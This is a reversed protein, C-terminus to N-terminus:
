RTVSRGDVSLALASAADVYRRDYEAIADVIAEISDAGATRFTALALLCCAGDLLERRPWNGDEALSRCLDRAVTDPQSLDLPDLLDPDSVLETCMRDVFRRTRKREITAIRGEVFRKDEDNTFLPYLLERIIDPEGLKLLVEFAKVTAAVGAEGDTELARNVADAMIASLRPRLPEPAESCASVIETLANVVDLRTKIQTVCECLEHLLREAHDAAHEGLRVVAIAIVRVEAVEQFAASGPEGMIDGVMKMFALLEPSAPKAGSRITERLQEIQRQLMEAAGDPDVLARVLALGRDVTGRAVEPGLRAAAASAREDITALAEHGLSAAARPAADLVAELTKVARGDAPEQEARDLLDFFLTSDGDISARAAALTAVGDEFMFDRGGVGYLWGRRVQECLTLAIEAHTEALVAAAQTAQRLAQHYLPRGAGTRVLETLAAAYDATSPSDTAIAEEILIRLASAASSIWKTRTLLGVADAFRGEEHCGAAALTLLNDTDGEPLEGLSRRTAREILQSGAAVDDRLLTSGLAAWRDAADDDDVILGGLRDLVASVQAGRPAKLRDVAALAEDINSGDPPFRDLLQLAVDIADAAIAKPIFPPPFRQADITAVVPELMMRWRPDPPAPVHELVDLLMRAVEVPEEVARPAAGDLLEGASEDSGAEILGVAVSGTASGDLAPQALCRAGLADLPETRGLSRLARALATAPSAGLSSAEFLGNDRLLADVLRAAEDPDLANLAPLLRAQATLRDPAYDIADLAALGHRVSPEADGGLAGAAAAVAGHVYARTAPDVVAEAARQVQELLRGTADAPLRGLVLVDCVAEFRERQTASARILPLMGVAASLTEAAATLRTSDGLEDRLLECAIAVLQEAAHGREAPLTRAISIVREVEGLRVWAVLLSTPLERMLERATQRAVSLAAVAAPDPANRQVASRVATTFDDVLPGYSGFRTWSAQIWTADLLEALREPGYVEDVHQAANLLAYDGRVPGLCYDAVRRQYVEAEDDLLAQVFDRIRSHSLWYGRRADGSLYSRARDLLFDINTGRLSDDPAISILEDRALSGNAIALTGMLDTFQQEGCEEVGRQWWRRLYESHTQPVDRLGVVDGHAAALEVILDHVYFPDGESVDAILATAAEAASAPVNGAQAVADAIEDRELRGLEIIEDERLELGVQAPWATGAIERASFVLRTAPPLERPFLDPRMDCSGVAEDLGDLVVMVGRETPAPLTLLDAYLLRLDREQQPLQGGLGHVALLQESLSQLVSVGPEDRSIFHFVLPHGRADLEVIWRALLATKGFGAPGTVFLYPRVGNEVHEALRRLEDARGGTRTAGALLESFYRRTRPSAPRAGEGILGIGFDRALADLPGDAVEARNRELLEPAGSLVDDIHIVYALEAGEVARFMGVVRRLEPDYVPGGSIGQQLGISGVFNAVRGVRFDPPLVNWASRQTLREITERAEADPTLRLEQGSALSGSFTHGLPETSLETPRFGVGLAASGERLAGLQVWAPPDDVALVAVDSAPDSYEEVYRAPRPEDEWPVLVRLRRHPYVVHHCTLLRGDPLFFFGTGATTGDDALIRCSAREVDSFASM